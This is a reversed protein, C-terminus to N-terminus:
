DMGILFNNRFFLNISLRLIQLLISNPCHDVGWHFNKEGKDNEDNYLEM